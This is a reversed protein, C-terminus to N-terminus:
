DRKNLFKVCPLKARLNKKNNSARMIFGKCKKEGCFCTVDEATELNGDDWQYDITLEENKEIKRRAFLCTRNM